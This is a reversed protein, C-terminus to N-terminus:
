GCEDDFEEGNRKSAYEQQAFWACLFDRLNASSPSTHRLPFFRASSDFGTRLAVSKEYAKKVYKEDL